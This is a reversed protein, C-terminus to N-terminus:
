CPDAQWQLGKGCDVLPKWTMWHPIPMGELSPQIIAQRLLPYLHMTTQHLLQAIGRGREAKPETEIAIMVARADENAIKENVILHLDLPAKSESCLREDDREAHVSSAMKQLWILFLM